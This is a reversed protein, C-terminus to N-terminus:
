PIPSICREDDNNPNNVYTSVPYSAMDSWEQPAMMRHLLDASTGPSLWAEAEALDIVVPMRHHIGRMLDNADTTVLACTLNPEDKRVGYIAALLIPQGDPRHVRYPQSPKASKDWEYFSDAVVVARREHFAKRYLPKEHISEARANITSFKSDPLFGWHARELTRTGDREIIVPLHQTPALNYRPEWVPADAIGILDYLVSLQAPNAKDNLRGCM